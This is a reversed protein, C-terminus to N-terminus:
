SLTLTRTARTPTADLRRRRRHGPDYFPPMRSRRNATMTTAKKAIAVTSTFAHSRSTSSPRSDLGSASCSGRHACAVHDAEHERDRRQGVEDPRQEERLPELRHAGRAPELEGHKRCREEDTRADEAGVDGADERALRQGLVAHECRDLARTGRPRRRGSRSCRQVTYANETSAKLATEDEAEVQELADLAREEEVRGAHRADRRREGEVGGDAEDRVRVPLVVGALRRHAVERLHAPRATCFKTEAATPMATATASTRPMVRRRLSVIPLKQTSRVRPMSASGAAATSRARARARRALAHDLAEVAEGLRSVSAPRRRLRDGAPRERALLRDLLEARVAAAGEVGVRRVRELVRRRERVQELDEREQQDRERERVGEAPM